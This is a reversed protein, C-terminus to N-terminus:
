RRRRRLLVYLALAFAAGSPGPTATDCQCGQPIFDVNVTSGAAGDVVVQVEATAGELPARLIQSYTGDIPDREVSDQLDGATSTFAVDVLDAEEGYVNNFADVLQASVEITAFGNAPAETPDVALITRSPDPPGPSVFLSEAAGALAYRDNGGFQVHLGDDVNAAQVFTPDAVFDFVAVGQGNTDARGLLEDLSPRANGDLDYFFSITAGSIAVSADGDIETGNAPADGNPDDLTAVLQISEGLAVENGPQLILQPVELTVFLDNEGESPCLDADVGGDPAPGADADCDLPNGVGLFIARIIYPAGPNTGDPAAGAFTEGGHRGDVLTLRATAVGDAATVPDAIIFSSDDPREFRFTVREGAIPDGAGDVLKASLNVGQSYDAIWPDGSGVPNMEIATPTAPAALLAVAALPMLASM